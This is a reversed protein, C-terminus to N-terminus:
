QPKRYNYGVGFYCCCPNKTLIWWRSSLRFCGSAGPLTLLLPIASPHISPHISPIKSFKRVISGLFGSCTAEAPTELRFDHIEAGSTCVVDDAVAAAAPAAVPISKRKNRRPPRVPAEVEPEVEAKVTEETAEVAVEPEVDPFPFATTAEKEVEPSAASSLTASGPSAPLAPSAEPASPSAVSSRRGASGALLDRLKSDVKVLKKKLNFSKKM